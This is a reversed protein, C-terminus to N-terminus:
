ATEEPQGFERDLLYRAREKSARDLYWGEAWACKIVIDYPALKKRMQCLRQDIIKSDPEDRRQENYTAAMAGERTVMQRAYLMGFLQSEMATLGWSPPTVLKAGLERELQYIREALRDREEIIARISTM